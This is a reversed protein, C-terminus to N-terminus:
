EDAQERYFGLSKLAPFDNVQFLVAEQAQSPNLHEHRAWPAITFFDGERWDFRQGAVITAGEGEVVYLLKSGTNRRARGKFGPRLSQLAMGMTRMASGGDSPNRYELIVDDFPDSQADAARKLEARAMIRPYSLLPNPAGAEHGPQPPRMLAGGEYQRYAQDHVATVPQLSSAHPEFFTAHLTQMLPIDLVDLWVMPEQGQYVHDHWTWSPTLVLDGENMICRQGDVTTTAGRGRLIFRFASASHRHAGAVEGPLIVQISAWFTPTTGRDLGPSALRLTRRPGGADLDIEGGLRQLLPDLDSWKWHHSRM